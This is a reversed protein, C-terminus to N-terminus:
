KRDRFAQIVMVIGGVVAMISMMWVFGLGVGPMMYIGMLIIGFIIGIVGLIGAGWGGGKFAMILLVIGQILGWIGMVLVMIKPLAVASAIPYMLIYAGALFSVIGIFLKWGWASHDVFMAVIDMVGQVIWYVGVFTILLMYTEIKTKAPSWLLIAGIIFLLIGGMLSLWWPRAKTEFSTASTTATM